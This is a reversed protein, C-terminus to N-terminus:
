PKSPGFPMPLVVNSFCRAVLLSGMGAPQVTASTECSADALSRLTTSSTSKASASRVLNVRSSFSKIALSSANPSSSRASSNALNHSLNACTPASSSAEPASDASACTLCIRMPKCNESSIISPGTLRNDPPHRMRTEKALARKRAGSKNNSSSGVFWKSRSATSHNSSKRDVSNLFVSSTTDWSASKKSLTHVSITWKSSWRKHCYRPPYVFKLFICTCRSCSRSRSYLFNTSCPLFAVPLLALFTFLSSISFALGEFCYVTFNLKRGKNVSLASAPM